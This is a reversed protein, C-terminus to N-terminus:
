LYSTVSVEDPQHSESEEFGGESPVEASRRETQSIEETIVLSRTATTAQPSPCEEEEAVLTDDLNGEEGDGESESGTM